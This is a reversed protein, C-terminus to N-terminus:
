LANPDFIEKMCTIYKKILNIEKIASKGKRMVEKMEKDQKTSRLEVESKLLKIKSYDKVIDEFIIENALININRKTSM